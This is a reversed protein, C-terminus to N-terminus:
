AHLEPKSIWEWCPEDRIVALQLPHSCTDPGIQFRAWRITLELVFIALEVADQVPMGDLAIAMGHNQAMQELDAPAIGRGMLEERLSPKMGRLVAEAPDQIGRWSLGLQDQARLARPALDQPLRFEYEEALRAEPSYGAVVFGLDLAGQGGPFQAAYAPTVHAHLGAAISAVSHDTPLERCFDRVVGEISRDGVNGLGYTMVGIPLDGVQFLKRANAYSAMYGQPGWIQTMSDTGLALGDRVKVSTVITM